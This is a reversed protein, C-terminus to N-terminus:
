ETVSRLVQRARERSPQVSFLLSPYVPFRAVSAFVDGLWFSGPLMRFCHKAVLWGLVAGECAPWNREDRVQHLAAKEKETRRVPRSGGDSGPLLPGCIEVGIEGLPRLESNWPLWYPSPCSHRHWPRPCPSSPAFSLGRQRSWVGYLGARVKLVSCLVDYLPLLLPPLVSILAARYNARVAESSNWPPRDHQDTRRERCSQDPM